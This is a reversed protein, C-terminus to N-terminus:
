DFKLNINLSSNATGPSIRGSANIGIPKIKVAIHFSAQSPSQKPTLTTNLNVSDGANAIRNNGWTLHYGITSNDSKIVGDTAQGDIGKPSSLKITYSPLIGNCTLTIDSTKTTVNGNKIDSPIVSNFNVNNVSATCTPINILTLFSGVNNVVIADMEREPANTYTWGHTWVEAFNRTMNGINVITRGIKKNTLVFSENLPQPQYGGSTAPGSFLGTTGDACRLKVNNDDDFVWGETADPCDNQFNVSTAVISGKDLTTGACTGSILTPVLRTVEDGVAKDSINIENKHNLLDVSFKLNTCRDANANTSLFLGMILLFNILFIYNIKKM